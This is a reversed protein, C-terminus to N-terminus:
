FITFSYGSTGIENTHFNVVEFTFNELEKIQGKVENLVDNLDTTKHVGVCWISSIDNVSKKIDYYKVWDEVMGKICESMNRDQKLEVAIQQKKSSGVLGNHILFDIVNTKNDARPYRWERNWGSCVNNKEQQLYIAFEIQFWNEWGTIESRKIVNMSEKIKNQNFFDVILGKVLKFEADM